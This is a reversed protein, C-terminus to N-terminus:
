LLSDVEDAVKSADDDRWGGHMFRVIGARDVVYLTPENAPRYMNTLRRDRDWEVHFTFGNQKQFEAINGGEDDINVSKMALGREKRKQWIGELQANMVKSPHSWTAWFVVLTVKANVSEPARDGVAIATDKREPPQWTSTAPANASACGALLAFTLFLVRM